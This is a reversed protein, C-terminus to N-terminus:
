GGTGLYILPPPPSLVVDLLLGEGYDGGKGDGSAAGMIGHEGKCDRARCIYM